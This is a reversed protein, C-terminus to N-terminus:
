KKATYDEIVIKLGEPATMELAKKKAYVYGALDTLAKLRMEPTITYGLTTSEGGSSEKIYTENIYGLAKWDAKIFHGYYEIIDIDLDKLREEIQLVDKNKTGKQRGGTKQGKM